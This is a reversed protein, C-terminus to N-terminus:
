ANPGAGEPLAPTVSSAEDRLAPGRAAGVETRVRTTADDPVLPLPSGHLREGARRPLTLRFVAGEGPAGWAQLWGNHLRADELAISLGLGTGGTTRARAPDARWFRNFVAATEGPQLGVGRDRVAIAVASADARVYVDIDNGEGHEVANVMLNRLIREIRRPDVEATVSSAPAHIAVRSGRRQALPEMSAVVREVIARVDVPEAELVVAGADHRSIELLDGLLAEFRDLQAQLLEASRAVEPEFSGRNEHLLDAAMRVTTLPTRLEHSVDSVFQRQVRSLEELRVIQRQLSDAMSNFSTALKALDDEGRVRMREELRGATLSSATRAAVRVPAVVQRTVLAAIGALLLVLAFGAFALTSRVLGLTNQEQTLPFLYYLEYVGFVNSNILGGVALAPGQAGSDYHIRTYEYGARNNDTVYSRLARPVSNDVDVGLSARGNLASSANSPVIAVYSGGRNLEGVITALLENGSSVDNSDAADLQEQARQVGDNTEALASHAKADLLGRKVQDLVVLGLLAVVIGSILLTTTVIRLQLSQRWRHVLWNNVAVLEHAHM